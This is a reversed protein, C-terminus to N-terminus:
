VLFCTNTVQRTKPDYYVGLVPKSRSRAHRICEATGGKANRWDENHGIVLLAVVMDSDAVMAHNRGHLKQVAEYFNDPDPDTSVTKVTDAKRLMLQYEKQGFLGEDRWRVAQFPFPVYVDNILEPAANKARNVSWFALQDFGQAGGSIFRGVGQENLDLVLDTLFEVLPLYADHEYGHLDKPRAGTFCAVATGSVLVDRPLIQNLNINSM